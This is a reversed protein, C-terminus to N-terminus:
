GVTSCHNPKLKLDPTKAPATPDPTKPATPDPSKTKSRTNQNQIQHLLQIQHKPDPTTTCCNSRTRVASGMKGHSGSTKQWDSFQGVQVPGVGLLVPVFDYWLWTMLVKLFKLFMIFFKYVCKWDSFQCEAGLLVPVFDYWGWCHQTLMM